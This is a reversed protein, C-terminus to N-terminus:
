HNVGLYSDLAQGFNAIRSEQHPEPDRILPLSVMRQSWEVYSGQVFITM